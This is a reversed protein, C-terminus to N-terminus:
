ENKCVKEYIKNIKDEIPMTRFLVSRVYDATKSFGLSRARAQLIKNQEPTIRTGLRIEKM